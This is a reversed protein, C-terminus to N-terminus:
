DGVYRNGKRINDIRWMAQCNLYHLRKSVEEISPEIGDQKYAVPIIHDIEWEGQNEWTMGDKFSQQLHERFESIDCGLYEISKNSKNAQLATHVRRSVLSKLYSNPSCIKCIRKITEHACYHRKDKIYQKAKELAKERNQEYYEKAKQNQIDKNKQHYEKKRTKCIEQNEYYYERALQQNKDKNKEYDAKKQNQIKAKNAERYIKCKIKSSARCVDCTKNYFGKVNKSFYTELLKESGCRSCKQLEM